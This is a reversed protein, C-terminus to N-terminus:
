TVPARLVAAREEIAEAVREPEEMPLMHGADPLVVLEAGPIGAALVRARRPPTLRDHTGVLVTTPVGIDRLGERYDMATIGSLLGVRAAASTGFFGDRTAVVHARHPVRGLAGRTM